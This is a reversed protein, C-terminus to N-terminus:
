RERFAENLTTQVPKFMYSILSKSGTIIDATVTMGPLIRNIKRNKGLYTKDLYITAKYYPRGHEDLFTSASLQELAGTLQGYRAFNYSSVKVKVQDGIEMHGIDEPTVRAEVVLTEDLPVVEFLVGGPPIVSGVDLKLGKVIGKVPAYVTLREAKDEAATLSDKIEILKKNIEARETYAEELLQAELNSYRDQAESLSSQNAEMMGEIEFYDAKAQTLRENAQLLSLDSGAKTKNAKIHINLQNELNVKREKSTTKRKTLNKVDQKLQAIQKKLISKERQSSIRQQKLLELANHSLKDYDDQTMQQPKTVQDKIKSLTLKKDDIFADLRLLDIKLAVERNKLKKLETLTLTPSLLFVPSGAEVHEGDKVLVKAVIGGELHQVIPIQGRPVVVGPASAVEPIRTLAAWILLSFVIAFTIAITRLIIKPAGAEELAASLLLHQLQRHAQILKSKKSLQTM